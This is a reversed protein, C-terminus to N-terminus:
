LLSPSDWLALVTTVTLADLEELVELELVLVVLGPPLVVLLAGSVTEILAEGLEPLTGSETVKV